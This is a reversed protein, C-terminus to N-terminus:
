QKEKFILYAVHGVTKGRNDRMEFIHQGDISAWVIEKNQLENFKDQTIEVGICPLEFGNNTEIKSYM